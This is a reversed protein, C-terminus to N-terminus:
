LQDGVPNRSGSPRKHRSPQPAPARARATQSHRFATPRKRGLINDRATNSLGNITMIRTPADFDWHPWDSSYLLTREADMMELTMALAKPHSVELPQSSYFMERMYESPRKTLLPADSTRLLYEHDLRQMLFPIWALGSEIWIVKLNPFREPLGNILWNTLHTMNCTCFSMAHMATFRNMTRTWSDGWNPGAHFGLPMGLRELEAYVPM